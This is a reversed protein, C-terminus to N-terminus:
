FSPSNSRRIAYRMGFPCAVRRATQCYSWYIIRPSKAIPQGSVQDLFRGLLNERELYRFVNWTLADESNDRAVRCERKVGPDKIKRWLALDEPATWLM